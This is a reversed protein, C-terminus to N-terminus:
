TSTAPQDPLTISFRTGRADSDCTVEGGLQAIAAAVFALGLGSGGGTSGFRRFPQARRSEPLGPGNDAVVLRAGGSPLAAVEVRVEAGRGAYKVANGILNDLVRALLQPDSELLVPEGGGEGGGEGGSEGDHRSEVRVGGAKALPWSRDAAEDALAALDITECEPAAHDLRALRVFNDALDLTRRALTGIRNLGDATGAAGEALGLIAVQPGRMDHSLFELMARREAEAKRIATIETLRLIRLEALATGVEPANSLGESLAFTRGDALVLEGASRQGGLSALLSDLPQGELAEGLLARAGANGLVVRGGGDLVCLADPASEVVRQLFARREAVADILFDLRGVARAVADFGDTARTPSGAPALRGAKAALYRGVADLRRWGWLPYALVLALLVPGPPLWLRFQAALALSALPAALALALALALGGRPSLRWFGAFLAGLVALAFVAQAPAPAPRLFGGETLAQYLNAQIEVGNMVGGARAPVAYLDGLGAASAGVLVVKGALFQAPLTGDLVASAPVTRYAGAPRLPLLPEAQGAGSRNFVTGDLAVMLQPFSKGELEIWLPVRRVVGDADPRLAVHGMTPHGAAIAPAPPLPTFAGSRGEAMTFGWPLVVNGARTIAAGLAADAEPAGPESLLIDLAVRRAGAAHLRDILAALRRRDWPWRGVVALSREDIAVIVLDDSPASARTLVRDLLANDARASAGSWGAWWAVLLAVGLTAFWELLLRRRTM